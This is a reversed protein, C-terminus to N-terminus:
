KKAPGGFNMGVTIPIFSTGSAAVYRADVFVRGFALGGGVGVFAKSESESGYGTTGADYRHQLLGVLGSVYPRMTGTTALQYLLGGGVGPINTAEGDSGEHSAHSYFAVAQIAIRPDSSLPKTVGAYGIWGTNAYTGLDGSPAIAGGGIQFALPTQSHVVVPSLAVGAVLAVSVIRSRM